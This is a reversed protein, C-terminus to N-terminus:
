DTQQIQLPILINLGGDDVLQRIIPTRSLKDVLATTNEDINESQLDDVSLASSALAFGAEGLVIGPSRTLEFLSSISDSENTSDGAFITTLREETYGNARFLDCTIDYLFSEGEPNVVDVPEFPFRIRCPNYIDENARQVILNLDETDRRGPTVCLVQEPSRYAVVFMQLKALSRANVSPKLTDCLIDVPISSLITIWAARFWNLSGENSLEVQRHSSRLAVNLRSLRISDNDILFIPSPSHGINETSTQIEQETSITRNPTTNQSVSHIFFEPFPHFLRLTQEGQYYDVIGLPLMIIRETIERYSLRHSVTSRVADPMAKLLNEKVSDPQSEFLSWLAALAWRPGWAYLDDHDVYDYESISRIFGTFNRGEQRTFDSFNYALYEENNYFDIMNRLTRQSVDNPPLRFPLRNEHGVMNLSEQSENDITTAVDEARMDEALQVLREDTSGEELVQAKRILSNQTIFEIDDGIGGQIEVGEDPHLTAALDRMAQAQENEPLQELQPYFSTLLIPTLSALNDQLCDRLQHWTMRQGTEVPSRMESFRNESCEMIIHNSVCSLHIARGNLRLLGDQEDRSEHFCEVAQCQIRDTSAGQSSFFNSINM